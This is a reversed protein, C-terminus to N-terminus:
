RMFCKERGTVTLTRMEVSIKLKVGIKDEPLIDMFEKLNIHLFRHGSVCYSPGYSYIRLPALVLVWSLGFSSNRNANVGDEKKSVM